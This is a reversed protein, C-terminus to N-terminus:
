IRWSDYGTLINFIDSEESIYDLVKLPKNHWNDFDNGWYDNDYFLFNKIIRTEVNRDQVDEFQHSTLLITAVGIHFYINRFNEKDENGAVM